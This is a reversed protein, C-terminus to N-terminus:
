EKWDNCARQSIYYSASCDSIRYETLMKRAERMTPFEDVTEIGNNDKRNIYKISYAM